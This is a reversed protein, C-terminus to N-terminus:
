KRYGLKSSINEAAQKVMEFEPQYDKNKDYLGTNSIAAIVRGNHDFIPAGSCFMHERHERNDISYGRARTAALEKDLDEFNDITNETKKYLKLHKKIEEYNPVYALIAKGLSTCHLGNESGIACTTLIEDKPSYKDIYVIKMGTMVGLFITKKLNKGLEEIFPKAVKIVDLNATYRNGITFTKIGIGYIKLREDLIEVMQNNQLTVIIDYASTKPIDLHDKIESLSLGQPHKSLLDLIAVTREVTRNNKM